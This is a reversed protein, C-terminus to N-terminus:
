GTSPRGPRVRQGGPASGPQRVPGSRGVAALGGRLGSEKGLRCLALVLSELVLAPATASGGKLRSDTEGFLRFAERLHADSFRGVFEKVKFPQLRLLRAAEAEGRGQRLSEKAKWIQRYQWALSGLIRVPAEGAELNRALIHLVRGREQAGIAAALDFVSAGAEGGRVSEVEAPGAVTGAPVFAALKELERRILYLSGGPLTRLSSALDALRLVAEENLRVGAKGAEARIWTPFQNEYLPSCDVVVAHKSVAQSFKLRGDLKAAMFVLITSDSPAKLYPLLAEGERAPLKETAKVVLLRRPAFVPAEGARVLIESADCEDGYLLDCNFTELGNGGAAQEEPGLVSAKIAALAQDRLCDEEGCVLYLPAAGRQRIATELEQPKM